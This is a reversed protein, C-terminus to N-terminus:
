GVLGCEEYKLTCRYHKRVNNHNHICHTAIGFLWLYQQHKHNWHASNQADNAERSHYVQWQHSPPLCKKGYLSINWCNFRDKRKGFGVQKHCQKNVTQSVPARDRCLVCRSDWSLYMTLIHICFIYLTVYSAIRYNYEITKHTPIYM